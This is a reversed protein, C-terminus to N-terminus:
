VTDMEAGDSVGCAKDVAVGAGVTGAWAKDRERVRALAERASEAKSASSPSLSAVAHSMNETPMPAPTMRTTPIMPANARRALYEASGLLGACFAASRSRFRAPWDTIGGMYATPKPLYPDIHDLHLFVIPTPTTDDGQRNPQAGHM